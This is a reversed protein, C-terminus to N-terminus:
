RGRFVPRYGIIFRFRRGGVRTSTSTLGRWGSAALGRRVSGGVHLTAGIATLRQRRVGGSPVARGAQQVQAQGGAFGGGRGARRRRGKAAEAIVLQEPFNAGAAHAGDILGPLDAEVADDGQLEDAGALEGGLGLHAAELRFGFGGGAQLMGVDHRDIFDAFVFAPRIKGHAMHFALAERLGQRTQAPVGAGGGREQGPGGARHMVGMLVADEVAVELGGVDHEVGRALRLDDVEAEGAADAVVGAERQGALHEARGGVHRGLLGLAAGFAEGGGGVNVAQAHDEVFEQGAGHGEGARGREFGHALGDLLFRWAGAGPLAAHVAVQFGDAQTAQFFIGRAARRM